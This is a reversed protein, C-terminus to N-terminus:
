LLAMKIMIVGIGLWEGMRHLFPAFLFQTAELGREM